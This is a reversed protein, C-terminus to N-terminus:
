NLHCIPCTHRTWMVFYLPWDPWVEMTRSARTKASGSSLDTKYGNGFAVDLRVLGGDVQVDMTKDSERSFDAKNAEGFAVDLRAPGRIRKHVHWHLNM